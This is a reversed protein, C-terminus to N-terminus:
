LAEMLTVAKSFEFPDFVYEELDPRNIRSPDMKAIVKETTTTPVAGGLYSRLSELVDRPHTVLEEFAVHHAGPLEVVSLRATLCRWMFLARSNSDINLFHEEEIPPVWWPILRGDSSVNKPVIRTATKSRLYGDTLWGKAIFSRVVDAPRRTIVIFPVNPFAVQFMRYFRSINPMKLAIRKGTVAELTTRSDDVWEIGELVEEPSKMNWCNSADSAHLNVKRCLVQEIFSEFALNRLLEIAVPSRLLGFKVLVPIQLLWLPEYDYEINELSGILTGLLTTGSRPIGTILIPTM